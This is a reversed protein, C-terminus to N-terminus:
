LSACHPGCISGGPPEPARHTCWRQKEPKNQLLCPRHLWWSQKPVHPFVPLHVGGMGVRRRPTSGARLKSSYCGLDTQSGAAPTCCVLSWPAPTHASENLVLHNLSSSPTPTLSLQPQNELLHFHSTSSTLVCNPM